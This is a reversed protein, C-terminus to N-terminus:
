PNALHEEEAEAAALWEQMAPIAYIAEVYAQSIKDLPVNYSVFRSAVPAYMADALTFKGFLFGDGSGYQQRCTQWITIVRDIDAQVAANFGEYPYRARCDMPLRQRLAAFGSHMEACVSRAIARTATDQPLLRADPHQEALYECIALSDWITLGDCRLAPVRGTPSYRLIQSRTEPLDLPIRIEAFEVGTQKLALWPRLSWSSYNKNGIILTYVSM